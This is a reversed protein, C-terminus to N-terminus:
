VTGDATVYRANLCKHPSAQQSNTQYIAASAHRRPRPSAPGTVQERLPGVAQSALEDLRSQLKGFTEETLQM